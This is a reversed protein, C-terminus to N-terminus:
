STSADLFDNSMQPVFKENICSMLHDIAGPVVQLIKAVVERDEKDAIRMLYQYAPTVVGDKGSMANMLNNHDSINPHFTLTCPLKKEGIIMDSLTVTQTGTFASLMDLAQNQKNSM